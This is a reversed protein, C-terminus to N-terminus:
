FRKLLAAVALRWAQLPDPLALRPDFPDYNAGVLRGLSREAITGPLLAAIASRPMRRRLDKAARLHREASQAIEKVATLLPASGESPLPREPDLGVRAAVETPIYSRGAAAHFPLARMLGALAYAIGVERGAQRAPEDRVGLVELALIVLAGSSAEAYDELAALTAPPANELDLERADILRDFEARTLGLERIAATLPEAVVHQRPPKGDYAAEIVERWWQLRIRGLM